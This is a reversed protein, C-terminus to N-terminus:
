TFATRARIQLSSCCLFTDCGEVISSRPPVLIANAALFGNCCTFKQKSNEWQLLATMLNAIVELEHAKRLLLSLIPQAPAVVSSTAATTSVTAQNGPCLCTAITPTLPVGRRVMSSSCWCLGVISLPSMYCNSNISAVAKDIVASFDISDRYIKWAEWYCLM